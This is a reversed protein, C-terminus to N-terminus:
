VAQKRNPQFYTIIKPSHSNVKLDGSIYAQDEGITQQQKQGDPVPDAAPPRLLQQFRGYGLILGVYAAIQIGNEM